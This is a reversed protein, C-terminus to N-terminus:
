DKMETEISISFDSIKSLEILERIKESTEYIKEANIQNSCSVCKRPPTGTLPIFWNAGCKSCSTKLGKIESLETVFTKKTV